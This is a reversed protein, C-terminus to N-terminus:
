VTDENGKFRLYLSALGLVIGYVLGFKEEVNPALWVASLIMYYTTTKM